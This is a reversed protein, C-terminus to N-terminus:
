EADEEDAMTKARTVDEDAEADSATFERRGDEYVDVIRETFYKISARNSDNAPIPYAVEDINCDTNCLGVIPINNQTAESVAIEEENTDIIFMAAPKTDMTEIGGFKERLRGIEREQLLQEKKTYKELEGSDRKEELDHLTDIRGRINDFNTLTGGIWRDTVYPQDIRKAGEKIAANAEHKSTVFLLQKGSKGLEKVFALAKDLAEKTKQLDIIEMKNKTGYIYPIVSPHRRRRSHGYHAGAEYMKKVDKSLEYALKAIPDPSTEEATDEKTQTATQSM